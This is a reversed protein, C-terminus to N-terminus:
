KAPGSLLGSDRRDDHNWSGAATMNTLKRYLEAVFPIKAHDDPIPITDKSFLVFHMYTKWLLCLDEFSYSLGDGRYCHQWRDPAGSDRELPRLPTSKYLTGFNNETLLNDGIPNELLFGVLSGAVGYIGKREDPEAGTLTDRGIRLSLRDPTSIKEIGDLDINWLASPAAPPYYTHLFDAVLVELHGGFNPYVPINPFLKYQLYVALGEALLRNGNPFLVHVLEHAISAEGAVVRHAPFEMWGRQGLWAPVLARSLEYIDSVFIHFDARPRYQGSTLRPPLPADAGLWENNDRDKYNSLQAQITQLQKAFDEQFRTRQVPSVCPFGHQGLRGGFDFIALLNGDRGVRTAGHNAFEDMVGVRAQCKVRVSDLASILFIVLSHRRRPV